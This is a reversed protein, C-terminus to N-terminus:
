DAADNKPSQPKAKQSQFAYFLHMFPYIMPIFEWWKDKLISSGVMIPNFEYIWRTFGPQQSFYTLARLNADQEVPHLYHIGKSMASRLSPLGYKFLYLPGSSRSQLTHGFEHMFLHNNVEGKIRVDGLIVTGFCVGGWYPRGMKVALVIAGDFHSIEEVRYRAIVWAGVWYGLVTQWLEWTFRRFLPRPPGSFHLRWFTWYARLPSM